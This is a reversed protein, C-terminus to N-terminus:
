CLYKREKGNFFYNYCYKFFVILVTLSLIAQWPFGATEVGWEDAILGSDPNRSAIWATVIVLSNNLAHAFIGPWLSGTSYLIYGFFAGLLLRPFFGFFQMHVASFITAAVWISWQRMPAYATLTRQLAGRFLMEEGIGTLLGVILVGSILGGASTSSLIIKTVEAASDEMQRMYTEIGEMAAPLHMQNNYYILQNLFPIGILYAIVVGAFPRWSVPESLGVFAIPRNSVIWAFVLSSGIFGILNQAVSQALFSERSMPEFFGGIWMAAAGAILIAVFFCAALIILRRLLVNEGDAAKM